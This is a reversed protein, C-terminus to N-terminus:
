ADAARKEAKAVREDMFARYPDQYLGRMERWSRRVRASRVNVSAVGIISRYEADRLAGMQHQHFINDYHRFQASMWALWRRQEVPELPEETTLARELFAAMEPNAFVERNVERVGQTLNLYSAAQMSRTNQRIQIALYVLSGIVGLAGFLEAIAGIADWNM